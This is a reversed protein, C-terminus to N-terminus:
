IRHPSLLIKASAVRWPLDLPECAGCCHVRFNFLIVRFHASDLERFKNKARVLELGTSVHLCMLFRAVKACAQLTCCVVRFRVFDIVCATAPVSDAFRDWYDDLAKEFARVIGKLPGAELKCEFQADGCLKRLAEQLKPQLKRAISHLEETTAVILAWLDDKSLPLGPYREPHKRLKGVLEDLAKESDPDLCLNSPAGIRGMRLLQGDVGRQRMNPDWKGPKSHDISPLREVDWQGSLNAYTEDHTAQM